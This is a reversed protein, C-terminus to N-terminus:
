ILGGWFISALTEQGFFNRFKFGGFFGETLSAM